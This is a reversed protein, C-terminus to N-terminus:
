VFGNEREKKEDRRRLGVERRWFRVANNDKAAPGGEKYRKKKKQRRPWGAIESSTM